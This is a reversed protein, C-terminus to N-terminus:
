WQVPEPGSRDEESGDGPEGFSSSGVARVTGDVRDTGRREGGTM